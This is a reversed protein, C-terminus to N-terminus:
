SCARAIGRIIEAPCAQSLQETGHIKSKDGFRGAYAIRGTRDISVTFMRGELGVWDFSIEGDAEPSVEPAPLSRPLLRAFSIAAGATEEDVPIAGPELNETKRGEFSLNEIELVLPQLRPAAYDRLLRELERRVYAAERGAEVEAPTAPAFGEDYTPCHATM